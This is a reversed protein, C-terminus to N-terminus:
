TVSTIRGRWYEWAGGPKDYTAVATAPIRVRAFERHDSFRYQWGAELFGEPVDYPRRGFARIVEDKENLEFSVSVEQGGFVTRVRFTREGTEDWVLEPVALALQPNWVLEALSRVLQMRFVEPGRRGGIPIIGWLRARGSGNASDHADEAILWVGPIVNFRAKWLFAFPRPRYHTQGSFRVWWGRIEMEGEQTNQFRGPIPTDVPLSRDL